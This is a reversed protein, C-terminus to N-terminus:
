FYTFHDLPDLVIDNPALFVIALDLAIKPVIVKTRLHSPSRSPSIRYCDITNGKRPLYRQSSPQQSPALSDRIMAARATLHHLAALDLDFQFPNNLLNDFTFLVSM